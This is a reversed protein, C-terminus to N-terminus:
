FYLAFFFIKNKKKKERLPHLEPSLDRKPIIVPTKKNKKPKLMMKKTKRKQFPTLFIPVYKRADSENKKRKKKM